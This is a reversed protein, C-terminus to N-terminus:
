TFPMRPVGADLPTLVPSTLNPPLKRPPHFLSFVYKFSVARGARNKAVIACFFKKEPWKEICTRFIEM